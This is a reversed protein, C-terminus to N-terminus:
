LASFIIEIISTYIISIIIGVFHILIVTGTVLMTATASLLLSPHWRGIGVIISVIVMAITKLPFYDTIRKMKTWICTPRLGAYVITGFMIIQLLLPILVTSTATSSKRFTGPPRTIGIVAVNVKASITTPIM